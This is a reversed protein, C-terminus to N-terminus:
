QGNPVGMSQPLESLQRQAHLGEALTFAIRRALEMDDLLKERETMPVTPADLGVDIHSTQVAKGLTRDLLEQTAQFQLRLPVKQEEDGNVVKGRVFELLKKLAEPVNERALDRFEKLWGPRGGPNASEGPKWASSPLPKTSESM